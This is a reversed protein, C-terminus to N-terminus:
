RGFISIDRHTKSRYRGDAGANAGVSDASFQLTLLAGGGFM